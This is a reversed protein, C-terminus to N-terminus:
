KIEKPPWPFFASTTKQYDRYADGKRRLAAAETPPIGTVRLLLFLILAPAHIATWGWESGCAFLYFGLWIVFEFFYNPHRSFRWLGERCVGGPGPHSKKYRSMQADALAEGSIGVMALLVGATEWAGWSRDGDMAVWFFPLALLLVSVAQVQFFLFFAIGERKKWIERLELYRADEEPYMRFIRRQLHWGLRASWAAVMAAAVWIKPSPENLALLWGLALLGIGFAWVADVLSYNGIKRAVIWAFLFLGSVWAGGWLLAHWGSM